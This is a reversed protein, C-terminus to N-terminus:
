YVNERPSFTSMKADLWTAIDMLLDMHSGSFSTQAVRLNNDHVPVHCPYLQVRCRRKLRQLLDAGFQLLRM